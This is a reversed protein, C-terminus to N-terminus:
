HNLEDLNGAPFQRMSLELSYVAVDARSLLENYEFILPSEASDFTQIVAGELLTALRSLPPGYESLRSYPQETGYKPYEYVTVDLEVVDDESHNCEVSVAPASPLHIGIYERSGFWARRLYDSFEQLQETTLPSAASHSM